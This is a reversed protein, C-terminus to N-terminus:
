HLLNVIFAFRSSLLLSLSPMHLQHEGSPFVTPRERRDKSRDANSTQKAQPRGRWDMNSDDATM